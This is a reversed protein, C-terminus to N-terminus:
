GKVSVLNNCTERTYSTDYPPCNESDNAESDAVKPPLPAAITAKAPPLKFNNQISTKVFQSARKYRRDSYKEFIAAHHKKANECCELILAVLPRLQTWTYGSYHAHALSQLM